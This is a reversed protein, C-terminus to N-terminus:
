LFLMGVVHKADPTCCTQGIKLPLKALIARGLSLDASAHLAKCSGRWIVTSFRCTQLVFTAGRGAGEM